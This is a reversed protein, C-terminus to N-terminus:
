APCSSIPTSTFPCLTSAKTLATRHGVAGGNEVSHCFAPTCCRRALCSAGPLPGARGSWGILPRWVGGARKFAWVPAEAPPRRGDSRQSACPRWYMQIVHLWSSANVSPPDLCEIRIPNPKTRPPTVPHPSVHILFRSNIVCGPTWLM